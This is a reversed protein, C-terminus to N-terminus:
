FEPMEDILGKPERISGDDVPKKWTNVQAYWKDGKSVKLDLNVWDEICETQLWNIFESRKISLSGRIFEPAGPRPQKVMLGQPFTANKDM